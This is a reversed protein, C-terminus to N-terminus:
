CEPGEGGIEGNSLAEINAFALDMATSKNRDIIVNGTMVAVLFTAGLILFFKSKM